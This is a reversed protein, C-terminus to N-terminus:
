PRPAEGRGGPPVHEGAKLESRRVLIERVCDIDALTYQVKNEQDVIVFAVGENEPTANPCNGFSYSTLESDVSTFRCHPLPAGLLEVVQNLSMGNTVRDYDAFFSQMNEPTVSRIGVSSYDSNVAVSGTSCGQVTALLVLAPLALICRYRMLVETKMPSRVAASSGAEPM